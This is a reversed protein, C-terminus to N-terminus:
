LDLSLTRHLKNREKRKNKIRKKFLPDYFIKMLKRCIYCLNNNKPKGKYKSPNAEKRM